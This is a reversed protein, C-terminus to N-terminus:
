NSDELWYAPRGYYDYLRIEYERNVPTTPDYDPSHRVADRSLDLYVKRDTRSIRMIWDASILIQRGPIWNRTNAVLYRIRWDEVNVIFDDVHGIEGDTAQIHRRLVRRLSHLHPAAPGERWYAPWGYYRCLHDEHERSIPSDSDLAPSELIQDRTLSAPILLTRWDPRGFSVPSLLVKRGPLWNGTDVACYRVVWVTDDFYFDLLRGIDGDLAQISYGRLSKLSLLM